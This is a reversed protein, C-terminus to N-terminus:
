VTEHQSSTVVLKVIDEASVKIKRLNKRREIDILDHYSKFEDLTLLHECIETKNMPMPLEVFHIDTFKNTFLTLIRKQLNNAYRVKTNGKACTAIGAVTFHKSM